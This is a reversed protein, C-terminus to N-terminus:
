HVIVEDVFIFGVKKNDKDPRAIYRIYRGNAKGNWGFKKLFFGTKNFPIDNKVTALLTFNKNDPSTYIEVEKPMWYWGFGDQMFTAEISQIETEAQMDIIIDMSNSIFGQWRNDDPGWSGQLGDTLATKGGATYEYTYMQKYEVPKQYALHRITDNYEKRQGVEKKLDFPNYGKSQLFEVAVVANRRFRDYSKREPLSWGTEAIALARPWIMYEENEETPIYEAWVNGQIGLIHKRVEIDLSDPVPNYSYVKELPTYGAWSLTHANPADQYFNFYCYNIPTMIADHGRQAADIGYEEGQWSMVTANPALGGQMIEDWGLLRRGKANLFLEIRHIMYSQLEDVDKFAEQKMLKNCKSCTKWGSKEAEDGGIHIFESPFLELVESLVNELFVFTEPNGICFDSNVYPKGACSLQPFAALVEESHGPMEIEPIITIHRRAAYEVVEKIDEQTYYGGYADPTDGSCYQKGNDSWEILSEYPRWATKGTLEPYKKIEIRWGAGDVLHWHLRNMKYYAMMDIQKKIFEKSFFHRSVDILLGRHRLYPYDDIIMAPIEMGYQQVLQLLTQFGYFIGAGAVAEIKIESSNIQLRYSELSKNDTNEILLLQLTGSNEKQIEENFQLPSQKIFELFEAKEKGQMNTYVPTGSSIKFVGTKIIIDQPVPIIQISDTDKVKNDQCSIFILNLGALIVILLSIRHLINM